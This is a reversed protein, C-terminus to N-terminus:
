RPPDAPNGGVAALAVLAVVAAIAVFTTGAVAASQWGLVLAAIDAVVLTGMPGVQAWRGLGILVFMALGLLIPAFYLLCSGIFDGSCRFTGPIAALLLGALALHAVLAVTAAPHDDGFSPAM